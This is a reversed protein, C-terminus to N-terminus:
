RSAAAWPSYVDGMESRVATGFFTRPPCGFLRQFVRHCQSYSGFGAESSAALLNKAGADVLGILRLVRLRTRYTTLTLGVDQHFHRSIESPNARVLEAVEARRLDPRELLSTLTRRTLTHMNPASLRLAHAARWLEGVHRDVDGAAGGMVPAACIAAFRHLSAPDLRLRAAGGTAACLGQGLVQESLEPTMGIVYLDFDPSAELLVHDQGPPWWLLDGTQVELYSSGVGFRASGAAILNLEPEAHFHRPRRNEPAYRWIHARARGLMPFPQYLVESV